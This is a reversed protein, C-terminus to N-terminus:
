FAQRYRTKANYKKNLIIFFNRGVKKGFRLPTRTLGRKNKNKKNRLVNAYVAHRRKASM